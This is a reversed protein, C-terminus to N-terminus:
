EGIPEAMAAPLVTSYIWETVRTKEEAPFAHGVGKMESKVVEMGSRRARSAVEQSNEANPSKEGWAVWCHEGKNSRYGRGLAGGGDILVFANFYDAFEKDQLCGDIAHGGNSFGGIMRLRKDINPFEEDLKALMPKWYDWVEDFSGVMNNQAPNRGDDPYPLGACLFDGRTLGSAGGPSNSGNGGGLFIFLPVPKELSYDAPLKVSFKALGGSMDKILEPFEFSLTKGARSDQEGPPTPKETPNSGNGGNGKMKAAQWDAVWKQDAGSLKALPVEVEQGNWLLFVAEDKVSLMQAEIVVGDTNTFKRATEEASAGCPAGSALVLCALLVRLCCPRVPASGAFTKVAAIMGETSSDPCDFFGHRTV